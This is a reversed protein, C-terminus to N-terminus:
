LERRLQDLVDQIGLLDFRQRFIHRFISLSGLGIQATTKIVHDLSLSDGHLYIQQLVVRDPGEELQMSGTMARENPHAGFDVAREYLHEIIPHLNADHGRLTDMVAVHQFERRVLRKAGEDDHRRMWVEGLPPNTNIHLAYLAYELCVRLVPFTDPAQGSTALRCAGRYASHSRLLLAAGLIDPPNVLNEGIRLFSGDIRLLLEFGPYKRVFTTLTNKFAQDLFSSLSDDGWRPPLSMSTERQAMNTSGLSGLEAVRGRSTSIAVAARHRRESCRM